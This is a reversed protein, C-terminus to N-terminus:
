SPVGSAVAWTRLRWRARLSALPRSAASRFPQNRGVRISLDTPAPRSALYSSNPGSRGQGSLRPLPRSVVPCCGATTAMSDASAGPGEDGVRAGSPFDSIQVGRLVKETLLELYFGVFPHGSSVNWAKIMKVLPVLNGAHDQDAATVYTGHDQPDTAIWAQFYMDPILFGGGQRYFAPVVDVKFDTFTITVAQGNRAIRPTTAYTQRLM